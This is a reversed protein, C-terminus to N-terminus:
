VLKINAFIMYSPVGKWISYWFNKYIELTELSKVYKIEQNGQIWFLNHRQERQIWMIEFIIKNTGLTNWIFSKRKWETRWNIFLGKRMILKM